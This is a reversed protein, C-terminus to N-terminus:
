LDGIGAKRELLEIRQELKYLKNDLDSLQTSVKRLDEDSSQSSPTSTTPSDMFGFFNGDSESQTQQTASQPEQFPQTSTTTMNEKGLEVFGDKDTVVETDHAPIRLSGKKQLDRIDVM